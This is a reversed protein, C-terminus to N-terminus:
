LGKEKKLKKIEERYGRVMETLVVPHIKNNQGKLFRLQEIEKKGYTDLMFLMYAYKSDTDYQNCHVCQVHMNNDIFDLGHLFHGAQADGGKWFMSKGCTICIVMGQDNAARLRILENYIRNATKLSTMKMPTTMDERKGRYEM